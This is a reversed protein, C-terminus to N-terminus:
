VRRRIVNDTMHYRPAIRPIYDEPLRTTAPSPAGLSDFAVSGLARPDLQPPNCQSINREFDSIKLRHAADVANPPPM